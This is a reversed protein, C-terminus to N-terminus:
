QESNILTLEQDREEFIGVSVLSTIFGFIQQKLDGGEKNGNRLQYKITLGPEAPEYEPLVFKQNSFGTVRKIV